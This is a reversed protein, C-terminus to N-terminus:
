PTCLGFDCLGFGEDNEINITTLGRLGADDSHSIAGLQKEGPGDPLGAWDVTLTETQGITASTPAAVTMNGRDDVLGFNWNFLIATAPLGGDTQYGHVFVVYPDPIAPDNLPLTVSVEENSEPNGSSDVLTCLFDPCYYLYLDLDDNGSTYENFLSWRAYAAGAPVEDLFAITTGPGLFQFSNGPDDEVEALWLDPEALGHVGAAYGGTYGFTVDFQASGAPGAGAVEVPAIIAKANVAIPSRVSAGDGYGDKGDKDKRDNDKWDKGKGHKDNWGKEKWTLSGFRWEGPPATENTVTVEFTASEGRRLYLKRPSVEVRFGEPAEVDAEFASSWREGVYTVTRKITKTGPLEGIGISPLNLDAPDLSYGLSELVACSGASVLPSVTGCSAALYDYLGSDYVLGPGVAENPDVHGAGFDFPDAPTAGDEKVVNQRASTMLASKIAAPSWEPHAEKILAALGAIHPSSMSTGQLYAFYDGASGDAPEPTYAALIRVGPATVDPKIWDSETTFPGRSSFDAMINGTLPETIFIGASLTANVTAGGEIEARLAEGVDLDVMVGPITQTLDTAAGGMVTKPRSDTYMLVAMAGAAAAAEVKAVFTCTCRQILAIKGTLDNALPACADLPDAMAVDATLPGVEVLPATIGGELAAYDGAVTAPANVRAALAFGTGDLTSAGVSMVWPEGAATTAFGPGENGASRAVFVGDNFANLFAIDQPDNFAAATGVSFNIIDVGDAVAAETAAATDSFFCSFNGTEPVFWCAKYAAVRARPAMGSIEALPVGNLSAVVGENGAATSATHSGHGSADRPSLFEGEDISGRAAIFGDAFWRAGILKNNCDTAAFAEGAECEGNWHKPRDYVVRTLKERLYDCLRDKGGGHHGRGDDHGRKRGKKYDDDRCFDPLPFTKKDSFSPHEQTIGSDIIGIVVDEGRLELKARLGDRRDLLGLFEPSNNTDIEIARDEWVSLVEKNGSLKAAEVATLRAAVANLAHTYSYVKRNRAGVSDLAADQRGRLHAVYQQVHGARSNYREGREPATRALGPKDGQYSIAPADVLQIVYTRTRIDTSPAAAPDLQLTGPAITPAGRVEAAGVPAAVLVVAVTALVTLIRRM